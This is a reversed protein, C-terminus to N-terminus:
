NDDSERIGRKRLIRGSQISSLCSMRGLDVAAVFATALQDCTIAM